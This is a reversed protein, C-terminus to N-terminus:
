RGFESLVAIRDRVVNGLWPNDSLDEKTIKELEPLPLVAILSLADAIKERKTPKKSLDRYLTYDGLDEPVDLFYHCLEHFATHLWRIGTLRNNLLIYHRGRKKQYYGDITLPIERVVIKQKKATRWFDKETLAIQNFKPFVTLIKTYSLEM